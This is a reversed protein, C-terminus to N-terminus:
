TKTRCRTFDQAERWIWPRSSCTSVVSGIWLAWGQPVSSGAAVTHVSPPIDTSTSSTLNRRHLKFGTDFAAENSLKM